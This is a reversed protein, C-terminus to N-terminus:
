LSWQIGQMASGRDMSAYFKDLFAKKDIGVTGLTRVDWRVTYKGQYESEMKALPVNDLVIVSPNGLFEVVKGPVLPSFQEVFRKGM